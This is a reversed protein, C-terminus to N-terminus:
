WKSIPCKESALKLKASTCGCKICKGLGMRAKAYWYPCTDCIAKRNALTETDAIKFGSKAFRLSAKTFNQLMQLSSLSNEEAEIKIYDSFNLETFILNTAKVIQRDEFSNGRKAYYCENEFFSAKYAVDDGDCISFLRKANINCVWSFLEGSEWQGSILLENPNDPNYSVRYLYEVGIFKLKRLNKEEAIFLEGTRGGYEIRNKWVFGVDASVIKESIPNELDAIRYLYFRRDSEYGGAIFSLSWKGNECEATPSCETADEPLGTNIRQWEGNEFHHLKWKGNIIICCFQKPAFEPANGRAIFPMHSKTNETFNFM